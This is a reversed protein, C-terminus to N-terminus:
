KARTGRTRRPTPDRHTPAPPTAPDQAPEEADEGEGEEPEEGEPEEGEPDEADPEGEPLALIAIAKGKGILFLAEADPLNSEEGVGVVGTIPSGEREGITAVTCRTFRVRIM